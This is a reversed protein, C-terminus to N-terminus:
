LAGECCPKTTDSPTSYGAHYRDDSCLQQDGATTMWHRIAYCVRDVKVTYLELLDVTQMGSRTILSRWPALGHRTYYRRSISSNASM